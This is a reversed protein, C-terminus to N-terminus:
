CSSGAGGVILIRTNDPFPGPFSAGPNLCRVREGTSANYFAAARLNFRNKASRINVPFDVRYVDNNYWYKGGTYGSGTWACVHLDPCSSDLTGVTTGAVRSQASVDVSAPMGQAEASAPAALLTASM